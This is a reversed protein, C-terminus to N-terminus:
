TSVPFSEAFRRTSDVVRTWTRLLVTGGLGVVWGSGPEKGDQLLERVAATAAGSGLAGQGAVAVGGDGGEMNAPAPTIADATPEGRGPPSACHRRRGSRGALAGPRGPSDALRGCSSSDRSLAAHRGSSAPAWPGARPPLRPRPTPARRLRRDRWQPQRREGPQLSPPRPLRATASIETCTNLRLVPAERHLSSLFASTEPIRAQVGCVCSPSTLLEGAKHTM